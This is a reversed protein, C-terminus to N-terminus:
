AKVPRGGVLPASRPPWPKGKHHATRLRQVEGPTYECIVWAAVSPARAPAEPEARNQCGLQCGLRQVRVSFGAALPPAIAPNGLSLVRASIRPCGTKHNTILLDTTRTWKGAGNKELLKM